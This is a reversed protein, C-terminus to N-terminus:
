HKRRGELFMKLNYDAVIRNLIAPDIDLGEAIKVCVKIGIGQGKEIQNMAVYFHASTMGVDKVVDDVSQQQLTMVAYIFEKPSTVEKSLENLLRKKNKLKMTVIIAITVIAVIASISILTGL